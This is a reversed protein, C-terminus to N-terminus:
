GNNQHVAVSQNQRNKFKLDISGYYSMSEHKVEKIWPVEKQFENLFDLTDFIDLLIDM